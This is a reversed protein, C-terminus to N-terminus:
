EKGDRPMGQSGQGNRSIGSRRFEDAMVTVDHVYAVVHPAIISEIYEGLGIDRRACMIKLAAHVEPALYVKVDKRPESM